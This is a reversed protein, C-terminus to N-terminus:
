HCAHREYVAWHGEAKLLTVKCHDNNFLAPPVPATHRVFFYRYIQAQNKTWDFTEYFPTAGYDSPHVAPLRDLRYRVILAPFWAFNLDTLGQREAQYWAPFNDYAVPNGAAPSGKDIILTLARQAPETADMVSEFDASEAAFDLTEKAQIGVFAICVLALLAQGAAARGQSFGHSAIAADARCFMLAYFPFIFLGFRQFVYFTNMGLSPLGLWVVVTVAMPTLAAPTRNVRLNLMLPAALLVISAQLSSGIDPYIGWPFVLLTLPRLWVKGWQIGFPYMSTLDVNRHLWAYVVCLVGLSVYPWLAAIARATRRRLTTFHFAMGIASVFLFVLGHSFFMGVGAALLATGRRTTPQDAYRLAVLLFLVGLPAAVLFTFFGYEYAFGFFAPLFLWDLRAEGGIRKRLLVCSTVFGYYALTLVLKVAATAPMVFSLATALAYGTVYPTFLNLRLLDRWPSVGLVLDHLVAVQAVHQPLDDMPPHPALWFVAGASVVVIVFLVRLLREAQAAVDEISRRTTQFVYM